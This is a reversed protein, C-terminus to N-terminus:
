LEQTSGADGGDDLCWGHGVSQHRPVSSSSSQISSNFQLKPCVHYILFLDPVVPALVEQVDWGFFLQLEKM